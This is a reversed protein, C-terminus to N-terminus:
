VGCWSSTHPLSPIAGSVRLRPVLCLHHDDELEPQKVGQFLAMPVWQTPFINKFFNNECSERYLNFLKHLEADNTHTSQVFNM